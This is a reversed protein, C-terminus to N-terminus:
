STVGLHGTEGEEPESDGRSEEEERRLGRSRGRM